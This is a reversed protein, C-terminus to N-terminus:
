SVVVPLHLIKIVSAIMITRSELSICNKLSSINLTVWKDYEDNRMGSVTDILVDYKIGESGRYNGTAVEDFKDLAKSFSKDYMKSVTLGSNKWVTDFSIHKNTSDRFMDCLEFCSEGIAAVHGAPDSRDVIGDNDNSTQAYDILKEVTNMFQEQSMCLNYIDKQIKHYKHIITLAALMTFVYVFVKLFSVVESVYIIPIM